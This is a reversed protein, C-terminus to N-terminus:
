VLCDRDRSKESRLKEGTRGERFLSNIERSWRRQRPTQNRNSRERRRKDCYLPSGDHRRLRRRHIGLSPRFPSLVEPDDRIDESLLNESLRASIAGTMKQGAPATTGRM